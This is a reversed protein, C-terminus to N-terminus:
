TIFYNTIEGDEIVVNILGHFDEKIPNKKGDEIAVRLRLKPDTKQIFELAEKETMGKLEEANMTNKFNTTATPKSGVVRGGDLSREVL